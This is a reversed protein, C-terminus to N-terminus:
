GAWHAMPGTRVPRIPWRVARSPRSGACSLRAFTLPGPVLCLTRCLTLQRQYEAQLEAPASAMESEITTCWKLPMRMHRQPEASAMVAVTTSCGCVQNTQRSRSRQRTRRPLPDRHTELLDFVTMENHGICRLHCVLYRDTCRNCRGAVPQSVVQCM